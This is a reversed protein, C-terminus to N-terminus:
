SLSVNDDSYIVYYINVDSRFNKISPKNPGDHNPIKLSIPKRININVRDIYNRFIVPDVKKIVRNIFRCNSFGFNNDHIYFFIVYFSDEKRDLFGRSYEKM